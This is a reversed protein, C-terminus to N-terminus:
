KSILSILTIEPRIGIRGQFGIVGLGHNIYLYKQNVEYLGGWYPYMWDLPCWQYFPLDIGIQAGHTHGSLTLAIDYQDKVEMEWHHPDHSLLIKIPVNKCHELAMDIDGYKHYPTVAWNKVGLLAISDNGRFLCISENQLNIFGMERQYEILLNVNELRHSPGYCENYDGFDHNGLVAYKGDKAQIKNFTTVYTLAEEAKLNVMDGTFVVIDPNLENILEIAYDFKNQNGFSGIHLDSIQVIKYDNFAEPLNDLQIEVKQVKYDQRGILIGYAILMFLISSIIIGSKLFYKKILVMSTVQKHTIIEVIIRILRLIDRLLIFFCFIAKSGYILIFTTNLWLIYKMRVSHDCPLNTLTLYSLSFITYLILIIWNFKVFLKLWKNHKQKEFVKKLGRNAYLEFIFAVVILLLMKFLISQSSYASYGYFM